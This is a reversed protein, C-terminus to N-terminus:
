RPMVVRPQSGDSRIVRGIGIEFCETVSALVVDAEDSSREARGRLGVSGGPAPLDSSVESPRM